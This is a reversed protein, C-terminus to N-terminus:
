WYNNKELWGALFEEQGGMVLWDYEIFKGENTKWGEFGESWYTLALGTFIRHCKFFTQVNKISKGM